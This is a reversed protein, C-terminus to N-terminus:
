ENAGHRKALGERWWGEPMGGDQNEPKVCACPARTRMMLGLVANRSMGYARAISTTRHGRAYRDLVDLLEADNLRRQTM